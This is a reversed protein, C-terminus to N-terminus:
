CLTGKPISITVNCYVGACKDNFIGDAAQFPNYYITDDIKLIGELEKVRAIISSLTEIGTSIIYANNDNYPQDTEILQRDIYYLTLVYDIYNEHEIHAQTSSIWVVPYDINPDDNIKYVDGEGITYHLIGSEKFYNSSTNIINQILQIYNTITSNNIM